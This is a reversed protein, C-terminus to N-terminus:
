CLSLVGSSAVVCALFGALVGSYVAVGCCQFM